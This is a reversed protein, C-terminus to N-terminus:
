ILKKIKNKTEICEENLQKIWDKTWANEIKIERIKTRLKKLKNKNIIKNKKEIFIEMEISIIKDKRLIIDNKKQSITLKNGVLDRTYYHLKLIKKNIKTRQYLYDINM